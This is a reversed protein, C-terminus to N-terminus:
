GHPEGGMRAAGSPATARAEPATARAEPPDAAEGGPVVWRGEVPLRLGVTSGTPVDEGPGLEADM